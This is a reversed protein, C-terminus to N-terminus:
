VRNSVVNSVAFVTLSMFSLRQELTLLFNIWDILVSFQTLVRSFAPKVPCSNCRERFKSETTLEQLADILHVSAFHISTWLCLITDFYWAFVSCLLRWFYDCYNIHFDWELWYWTLSSLTIASPWVVHHRNEENIAWIYIHAVFM